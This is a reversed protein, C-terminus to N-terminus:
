NRSANLGAFHSSEFGRQQLFRAQRAWDPYNVPLETGFKKVRAEEALSCWQDEFELMVQDITEAATEWEEHTAPGVEASVFELHSKPGEYADESVYALGFTLEDANEFRVAIPIFDKRVNDWLGRYATSCLEPTVVLVAHNNRTRKAFVNPTMGSLVTSG